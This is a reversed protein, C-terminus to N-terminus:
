AVPPFTAPPLPTGCELLSKLSSLLTPWGLSCARFVASDPAFQDHHLTLRTVGNDHHLMISVHSPAESAYDGFVPKFTYRLRQPKVVELITNRDTVDGNRVFLLPDGVLWTSELRTNHWYQQTIHPDTLADWVSQVDAQIYTVYTFSPADM